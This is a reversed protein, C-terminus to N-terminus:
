LEQPLDITLNVIEEVDQILEPYSDYLWDELKKAVRLVERQYYAPKKAASDVTIRGADFHIVDKGVFGYNHSVGSDRDVYGKKCQIVVQDLLSRIADVAGERDGRLMMSSIRDRVLVAKKQLVFEYRDLDVRYCNLMRDYLNVRVGLDRTKNLHIFVVGTEKKLNQYALKYSSFLDHHRQIRKEIKNFRYQGLGPLPLWKLWRKPSLHKIKFFKLVYQGDQSIFAYCQAGSGLYQFEQGLVKTVERMEWEGLPDVAWRSSPEFTSSIKTLNFGPRKGRLTVIGIVCSSLVIGFVILFLRQKIKVSVMM